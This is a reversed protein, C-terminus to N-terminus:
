VHFPEFTPNLPSYGPGLIQKVDQSCLRALLEDLNSAAYRVCSMRAGVCYIKYEVLEPRSEMEALSWCFYEGNESEGFPYFNMVAEESGDPEYEMYEEEVAQRLFGRVREGQSFLSFAHNEIPVYIMLIGLVRGFGLTNIFKKYSSPLSFGNDFSTKEMSIPDVNSSINKSSEITEIFNTM